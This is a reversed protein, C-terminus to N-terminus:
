IKYGIDCLSICVIWILWFSWGGDVFCFKILCENMEKYVVM